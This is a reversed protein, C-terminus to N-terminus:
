IGSPAARPSVPVTTAPAPGTEKAWRQCGELSREPNPGWLSSDITDGLQVLLATLTPRDKALCAMYAFRNLREPSNPFRKQMDEYGQKMLRWDALSNQFLAHGFEDEAAYAYLRAYMGMGYDAKTDEAARRIYDDLTRPDGHWKPLLPTVMAFYLMLDDPNQKLGDRLTADLQAMPMGLDKEIGILLVHMSSDPRAVDIHAELYAVARQLYDHFDKWAERPVDKVYGGGRYSWAHAVLVKAHLIHALSSKPHEAAWQLTLAELERLYPDRHAITTAITSDLGNRFDGLDLGGDPEIHKGHKLVENERDLYDFDGRWLAQEAAVTLAPRANNAAEAPLPLAAPLAAGALAGVSWALVRGRLRGAPANASRPKPKM